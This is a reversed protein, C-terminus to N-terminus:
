NKIIKFTRIIQNSAIVKLTYQGPRYQTTDFHCPNSTILGNEIVRGQSDLIQYRLEENYVPESYSLYIEGVSPNPYLKWDSVLDREQLSTIIFIEFAQQVGQHINVISSEFSQYAVQGISYSASGGDGIANGGNPVVANQANALSLYLILYVLTALILNPPKM